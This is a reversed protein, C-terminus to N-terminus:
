DQTSFGLESVSQAAGPVRELAKTALARAIFPQEIMAYFARSLTLSLVLMLGAAVYWSLGLSLAAATALAISIPHTLYLSYSERGLSILIRDASNQPQNLMRAAFFLGLAFVPPGLYTVLLNARGLDTLGVAVALGGALAVTATTRSIARGDTKFLLQEAIYCGLVWEWWRCVISNALTGRIDASSIFLSSGFRVGLSLALLALCITRMSFRRRAWLLLPYALYFHWEIAITWLVVNISAFADTFFSHLMLLHLVFFRLTPPKILSYDARAAISPVTAVVAIGLLLAFLHPPYIRMFRRRLYPGIDLKWGTQEHNRANPLHICLGSLVFFMGVGWLGFSKAIHWAARGLIGGAVAASISPLWLVGAITHDILVFLAALARVVDLGPLRRPLRFVARRPPLEDERVAAAELNSSEDQM